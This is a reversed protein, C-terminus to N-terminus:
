LKESTLEKFKEILIQVQNQKFYLKKNPRQLFEDIDEAAISMEKQLKTDTLKLIFRM